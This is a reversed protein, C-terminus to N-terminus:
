ELDGQIIKISNKGEGGYYIGLWVIFRKRKVYKNYNVSLTLLFSAGFLILDVSNDLTHAWCSLDFLFLHRVFMSLLNETEFKFVPKSTREVLVSLFTCLFHTGSARESTFLISKLLYLKEVNLCDSSFTM